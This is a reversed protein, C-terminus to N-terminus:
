YYTILMAKIEDGFIGYGSGDFWMKISPYCEMKNPATIFVNNELKSKSIKELESIFDNMNKEKDTAVILFDEGRDILKPYSTINNFVVNLPLERKNSSISKLKNIIYELTRM